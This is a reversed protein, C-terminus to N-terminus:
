RIGQVIFNKEMLKRHHKKVSPALWVELRAAYPVGPEGEHIKVHGIYLFQDQSNASWGGYERTALEISAPSLAIGRTIEFAKIYLHGPEGPNILIWSVYEGSANGQCLEFSPSEAQPLLSRLHETQEGETAVLQQSAFEEQLYDIATQTLVREERRSNENIRIAVGQGQIEIMSGAGVKFVQATFKKREGPHFRVPRGAPGEDPFVPFALVIGMQLRTEFEDLRLEGQYGRQWQQHVYWRRTAYTIGDEEHVRWLPQIALYSLLTQPSTQQWDFLAPLQAEVERNGRASGMANAILQASLPDNAVGDDRARWSPQSTLPQHLPIDTPLVLDDAFADRARVYAEKANPTQRRERLSEEIFFMGIIFLWVALVPGALLLFVGWQWWQTRLLVAGRFIPPLCPLLICAMLFYQRTIRRLPEDLLISWLLFALLSIALAVLIQLGTSSSLQAVKLANPRSSMTVGQFLSGAWEKSRLM